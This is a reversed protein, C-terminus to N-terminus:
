EPRRYPIGLREFHRDFTYCLPFPSAAARHALAADPFDVGLSAHDRLAELVTTREECVVGECTLLRELARTVSAKPLGMKRELVFVAEALIVSHVHLVIQGREARRFLAHAEEAM